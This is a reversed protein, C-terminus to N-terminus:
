DRFCSCVENRHKEISRAPLFVGARVLAAHLSSAGFKKNDLHAILAQQDKKELTPLLLSVRCTHYESRQPKLNELM